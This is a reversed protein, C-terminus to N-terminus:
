LPLGSTDIIDDRGKDRIYRLLSVTEEVAARTTYAARRRLFDEVSSGSFNDAVYTAQRVLAVVGFSRSWAYSKLNKYKSPAVESVYEFMFDLQSLPLGAGTGATVVSRALGTVLSVTWTNTAFKAPASVVYWSTGNRGEIPLKVIDVGSSLVHPCPAYRAWSMEAGEYMGVGLGFYFRGDRLFDLKGSGNLLDRSNDQLLHHGYM